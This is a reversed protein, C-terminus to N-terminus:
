TLRKWYHKTAVTETKLWTTDAWTIAPSDTSETILIDNIRYPCKNELITLRNSIILGQNASLVKNIDNTTLNNIIDTKAIKSNQLNIIDAKVPELGSGQIREIEANTHTTITELHTDKATVLTAIHTDKATSMETTHATKENTMATSLTNKHSTITELHTDKATVLTAIHTDKATSM